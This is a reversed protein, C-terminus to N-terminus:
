LQALLKEKDVLSGPYGMYYKKLNLNTYILGTQSSWPCSPFLTEVPKRAPSQQALFCRFFFVVLM